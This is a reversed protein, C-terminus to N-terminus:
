KGVFEAYADRLEADSVATSGKFTVSSLTVQVTSNALPCPGPPEPAFASGRSAPPRSVRAQPNLEAASTGPAPRSPRPAPQQAWAGLPATLATTAALIVVCVRINPDVRHTRRRRWLM